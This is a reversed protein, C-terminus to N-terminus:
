RRGCSLAVIFTWQTTFDCKNEVTVFINLILLMKPTEVIISPAYLLDFYNRDKRVRSEERTFKLCSWARYISSATRSTGKLHGLHMLQCLIKFVLHSGIPSNQFTRRGKCVKTLASFSAIFLTSSLKYHWKTFQLRLIFCSFDCFMWGKTDDMRKYWLENKLWSRYPLRISNSSM